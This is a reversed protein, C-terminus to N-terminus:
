NFPLDEDIAEEINVFGDANTPNAQKPMDEEKLLKEAPIAVGKKIAEISRFWAFRAIKAKKKKSENFYEEMRFVGGVLKNKFCAAYGDGWVPQFGLNSEEVCTNFTKLNRPGYETSEDVVLYAICGWKKDPRIDNRFQEEFYKPQSDEATTDLSILLMDLGSKSKAEEVKKIVMLHGGAEFPTFDGTVPIDAYNNPKKM